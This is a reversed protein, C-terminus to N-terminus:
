EALLETVAADIDAPTFQKKASPDLEFTRRLKGTRDYLKYHPLAGSAIEFADFSESSTGSKCQL